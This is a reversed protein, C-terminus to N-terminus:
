GEKRVSMTDDTTEIVFKQKNAEQYAEIWETLQEFRNKYEAKLTFAQNVQMTALYACFEFKSPNSAELEAQPDTPLKDRWVKMTGDPLVNCRLVVNNQKAYASAASRVSRHQNPDSVTFCTGVTLSAFPYKCARARKPVPEFQEIEYM